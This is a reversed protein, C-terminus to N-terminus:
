LLFNSCDFYIKKISRAKLIRRAGLKRIHQQSDTVMALLVNEPHAFYSNRQIVPDVIAKLETPLYRTAHILQYLHRAGDKCSPHTKIAFWTPAYAKVIYTAIVVLNEFPLKMSVYLRMIRNVRTLWRAHPMKGPSKNGLDIPFEGTTVALVIRYLYKQEASMDEASVEPLVAPIPQFQVIPRKECNELDKGITESFTQPGSTSGDIHLFLHRFPLENMHLLCIIWQLPINLRKELLRIIGGQKGVNVNTGDCGVALLTDWSIKEKLFLDSIAKEICKSTGSDLAIYGM